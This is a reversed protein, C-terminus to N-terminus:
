IAERSMLYTEFKTRRIFPRGNEDRLVFNCDPRKILERIKHQGVGSYVAAEQLSLIQKEFIRPERKKIM